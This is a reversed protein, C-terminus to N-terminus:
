ETVRERFEIENVSTIKSIDEIRLTYTQKEWNRDDDFSSFDKNIKKVNRPTNLDSPYYAIEISTEGEAIREPLRQILEMVCEQEAYLNDSTLDKFVILSVHQSSVKTGNEASLNNYDKEVIDSDKANVYTYIFANKSYLDDVLPAVNEKLQVSWLENLYTDNSIKPPNNNNSELRFELDPNREPHAEISYSSIAWIYRVDSIQFPENYKNELYTEAAERVIKKEAGSKSFPSMGDTYGKYIAVIFIALGILTRLAIKWSSSLQRERKQAKHPNKPKKHSLYILPIIIGVCHVVLAVPLVLGGLFGMTMFFVYVSIGQLAMLLLAGLIMGPTGIYFMGLGTFVLSLLSAMWQHKKM